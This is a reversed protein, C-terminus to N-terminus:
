KGAAGNPGAGIPSAFANGPDTTLLDYGKHLGYGIVWAVDKWFSGGEIQILENFSLEKIGFDIEGLSNRNEM